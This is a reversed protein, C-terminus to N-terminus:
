SPPQPVAPDPEPLAELYRAIYRRGRALFHDGFLPLFENQALDMAAHLRQRDCLLFQATSAAHFERRAEADNHKFAQQYLDGVEVMLAAM